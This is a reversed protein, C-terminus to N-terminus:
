STYSRTSGTVYAPKTSSLGQSSPAEPRPHPSPLVYSLAKRNLFRLVDDNKETKSAYDHFFNKVSKLNCKGPELKTKVLFASFIKIFGFVRWPPLSLQWGTGLSCVLISHPVLIPNPHRAPVQFVLQQSLHMGLDMPGPSSSLSGM